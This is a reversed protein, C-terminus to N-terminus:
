DRAGNRLAPERLFHGYFFSRMFAPVLRVPARMLMNCACGPATLLGSRYLFRQFEIEHLLYSFGGRRDQMGNGCRVHVLVDPLNCLQCGRELMRAWLHYDEFGACSQYNGADLVARRRFMVTMHNLPNRFKAFNLLAEGSAPPRRVLEPAHPDERFEAIAGGVVDFQPNRELVDLQRCFRGPACIDDADMRAVFEGRCTDLGERLALGLGAHALLRVSVIPLKAQANCILETLEPGLPGDEVIVIEDAETTQAALSELSARLFEASERNYIPMLVSLKM